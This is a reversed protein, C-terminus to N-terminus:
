SRDSRERPEFIDKGGKSEHLWKTHWSYSPTSSGFYTEMKASIITANHGKDAWDMLLSKERAM